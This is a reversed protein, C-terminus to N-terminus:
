FCNVPVIKGDVPSHRWSVPVEEGIVPLEGIEWWGYFFRISGLGDM